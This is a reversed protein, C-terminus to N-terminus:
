ALKTCHKYILLHAITGEHFAALEKSKRKDVKAVATVLSRWSPVGFMKTNYNQMIWQKLAESWCGENDGPHNLKINDINSFSLGLFGSLQEWKAALSSCEEIVINWNDEVIITSFLM